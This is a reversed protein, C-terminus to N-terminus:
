LRISGCTCHLWLVRCRWSWSSVQLTSCYCTCQISDELNIQGSLQICLNPIICKYWSILSATDIFSL